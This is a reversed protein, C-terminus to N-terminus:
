SCDVFIVYVDLIKERVHALSEHLIPAFEMINKLVKGLVSQLCLLFVFMGNSFNALVGAHAEIIKFSCLTCLELRFDSCWEESLARQEATDSLPICHNGSQVGDDRAM